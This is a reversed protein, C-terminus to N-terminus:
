KLERLHHLLIHSSDHPIDCLILDYTQFTIFSDLVIIDYFTNTKHSYHSSSISLIHVNSYMYKDNAHVMYRNYLYPILANPVGQQTRKYNGHSVKDRLKSLTSNTMRPSTTAVVSFMIHFVRFFVLFPRQVLVSYLIV